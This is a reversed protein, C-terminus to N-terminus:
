LAETYTCGHQKKYDKVHEIWKSTKKGKGGAKTKKRKGASVGASVGARKARKCKRKGATVGGQEDDDLYGAKKIRRKGGSGAGMMIKQQLIQLIRQLIVTQDM